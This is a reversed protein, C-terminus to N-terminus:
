AEGDPHAAVLDRLAQHLEERTFPKRLFRVGGLALVGDVMKMTDYGSILLIPLEPRRQRAAAVVDGVPTGPMVVDLVAGSFREPDATLSTRAPTGGDVEVAEAGFSRLMGAVGKRVALDDDAILFTGALSLTASPEPAVCPVELAVRTGEGAKSAIEMRGGLGEILAAVMALGLGEAGRDAGSTYFPEMVHPLVEPRIGRGTDQVWIRARAGDGEVPAAGVEVLGGAPMAAFSNEILASLIQVWVEGGGAVPRAEPAFRQQLTHFAERRAAVLATVRPWISPLATHSERAAGGGALRALQAARHSARALAAAQVDAPQDRASDLDRAISDAMAEITGLRRSLLGHLPSGREGELHAVRSAMDAQRTRQLELTEAALAARRQGAATRRRMLVLVVVLLLAAAMAAVNGLTGLM